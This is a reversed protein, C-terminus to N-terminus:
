KKLCYEFVLLKTPDYEDASDLLTSIVDLNNFKIEGSRKIIEDIDRMAHERSSYITFMDRSTDEILFNFTIETILEQFSADKM